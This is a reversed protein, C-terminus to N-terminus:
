MLLFLILSFRAGPAGAGFARWMFQRLRPPLYRSANAGQVQHDSNVLEFDM